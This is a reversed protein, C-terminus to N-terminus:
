KPKVAGNEHRAARRFLELAIAEDKPIGIGDQYRYALDYLADADGAAAERQMPDSMDFTIPPLAQESRSSVDGNETCAILSMGTTLIITIPIFNIQKHFSTM